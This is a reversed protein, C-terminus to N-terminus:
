VVARCIACQICGSPAVQEARVAVGPNTVVRSVLTDRSLVFKGVGPLYGTNADGILRATADDGNYWRFAVRGLSNTTLAADGASLAM